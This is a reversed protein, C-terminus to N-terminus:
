KRDLGTVFVHRRFCAAVATDQRFRYDKEQNPLVFSSVGADVEVQIYSFVSKHVVKASQILEWPIHIAQGNRVFYVGDEALFRYNRRKYFLIYLLYGALLISDEPFHPGNVAYSGFYSAATMVCFVPFLILHDRLTSYIPKVKIQGMPMTRAAPKTEM